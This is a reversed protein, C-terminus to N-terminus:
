STRVPSGRSEVRRGGRNAHLDKREEPLINEEGIRIGLGYSGGISTIAIRADRWEHKHVGHTGLDV